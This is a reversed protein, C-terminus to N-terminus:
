RQAHKNRQSIRYLIVVGYTDGLVSQFTGSEYFRELWDCFNSHRITKCSSLGSPVAGDCLQPKQLKATLKTGTAEDFHSTEWRIDEPKFHLECVKSYQSPTFNSRKIALIWKGALESNRPFGFVHVKPGQKYNGRVLAKQGSGCRLVGTTSVDRAFGLLLSLGQM